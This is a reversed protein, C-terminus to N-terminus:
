YYRSGLLTRTLILFLATPNRSPAYVLCAAIISKKVLPSFAETNWPEWLLIGLPYNRLVQAAGKLLGWFIASLIGVSVFM